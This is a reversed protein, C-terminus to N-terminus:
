QPPTESKQPELARRKRGKRKEADRENLDKDKLIFLLDKVKEKVDEYGEKLLRIDGLITETIAEALEARLKEESEKIKKEVFQSNVFERHELQEEIWGENASELNDLKATVWRKNTTDFPDVPDGLNKIRLNRADFHGESNTTLGRQVSQRIFEDKIESTGLKQGFKSVSSM